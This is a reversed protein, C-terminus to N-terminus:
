SGGGQETYSCLIGGLTAVREVAYRAADHSTCGRYILGHDDFLSGVFRGNGIEQKTWRDWLVHHLSANVDTDGGFKIVCGNDSLVDILHQTGKAKMEDALKGDDSYVLGPFDIPYWAMKDPRLFNYKFVRDLYDTALETTLVQMGPTGEQEHRNRYEELAEIVVARVTRDQRGAYSVLWSRLREPPRVSIPSHRHESPM